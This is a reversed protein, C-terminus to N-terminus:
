IDTWQLFIVQFLNSSVLEWFLSCRLLWNLWFLNIINTGRLLLHKLLKLGEIKKKKLISRWKKQSYVKLQNKKLIIRNWGSLMIINTGRLLLHKLLEFSSIVMDRKVVLPVKLLLNYLFCVCTSFVSCSLFFCFRGSHVQRTSTCGILFLV